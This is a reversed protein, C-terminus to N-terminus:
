RVFMRGGQGVSFARGYGASWRVTEWVGSTAYETPIADVYTAIGGSFGSAEKWLV